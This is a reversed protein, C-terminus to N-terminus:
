RVKDQNWNLRMFDLWELGHICDFLSLIRAIRFEMKVEIHAGTGNAPNRRFDKSACSHFKHDITNSTNQM